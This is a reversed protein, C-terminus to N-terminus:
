DAAKVSDLLKLFAERASKVTASPGTMKFFYAGSPAEVIAGLLGFGPKPKTPGGPMGSSFTGSEIEITHQRLGNANRDARKVQEVKVDSFQKIWREVNPEIGGGEGPGFYFVALEADEADGKARPVQYTAQRMATKGGVRKWEPPDVWTVKAPPTASMTPSPAAAPTPSSTPVLAYETASPPEPPQKCAPAALVACLSVARLFHDHKM